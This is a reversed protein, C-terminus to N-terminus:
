RKRAACCPCIIGGDSDKWGISALFERAEMMTRKPYAIEGCLSCIPYFSDFIKVIM